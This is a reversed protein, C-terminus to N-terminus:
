FDYGIKILTVRPFIYQSVLYSLPAKAAEALNQEAPTSGPLSLKGASVLPILIGLDFGISLPHTLRWNCGIGLLVSFMPFDLSAQSLGLNSGNFASLDLRTSLHITQYSLGGLFVLPGWDPFFQAHTEIGWASPALTGLQPYPGYGGEIIIRLSNNLATEIGLKVPIMAGIAVTSRWEALVQTSHAIWFIAPFLIVSRHLYSKLHDM